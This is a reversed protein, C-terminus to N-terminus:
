ALSKRWADLFEMVAKFKSQPINKYSTVGFERYLNGYVYQFHDKSSDKEHMLVALAKVVEKVESAMEDTIPIGGGLVRQEVSRLRFDLGKFATAAAELRQETISIRREHELQEEAMQMIARGLERIQILNNEAQTPYTISSRYLFAEALKQYCEKQYRVLRDRVEEKVRLANIGFLWGNLYELPLCLMVSNKPRRSSPDTTLTTITIPLAMETLVIDRTIRQRQADWSVGLFDCIPKLPIFIKTEGSLQVLVVTITDGYFEMTKQDIPTLASLEENDDEMM